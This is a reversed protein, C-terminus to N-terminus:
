SGSLRDALKNRDMIRKADMGEVRAQVRIIERPDNIACTACIAGSENSRGKVIAEAHAGGCYDCSPM